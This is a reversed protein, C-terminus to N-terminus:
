RSCISSYGREEPQIYKTEMGMAEAWEVCNKCLPNLFDGAIQMERFSRYSPGNFIDIMNEKNADGLKIKADYDRCCPVCIGDWCIVMVPWLFPCPERPVVMMKMKIQNIAEVQHAWTDFKKVDIKDIYSLKKWFKVTKEVDM